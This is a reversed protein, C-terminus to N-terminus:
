QFLWSLTGPLRAPLVAPPSGAFSGMRKEPRLQSLEMTLALEFFLPASVVFLNSLLQLM